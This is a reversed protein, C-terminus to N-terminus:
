EYFLIKLQGIEHMGFRDTSTIREPNGSWSIRFTGSTQYIEREVTNWSCFWTDVLHDDLL